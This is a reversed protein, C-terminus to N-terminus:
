LKVFCQNAPKESDYMGDVHRRRVRAGGFEAGRALRFRLDV